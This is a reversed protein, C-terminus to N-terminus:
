SENAKHWRVARPRLVEANPISPRKIKKEEPNMRTRDILGIAPDALLSAEEYNEASSRRSHSSGESSDSWCGVGYSNERNAARLIDIHSKEVKGKM